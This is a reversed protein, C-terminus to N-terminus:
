VTGCTEFANHRVNGMLILLFILKGNTNVCFILLPSFASTLVMERM